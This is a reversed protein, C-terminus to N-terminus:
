TLKERVAQVADDRTVRATLRMKGAPLQMKRATLQMKRALLRMKGATLPIKGYIIANERLKTGHIKVSKVQDYYIQTLM